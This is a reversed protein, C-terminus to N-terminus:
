RECSAKREMMQPGDMTEFEQCKEKKTKRLEGIATEDAKSVEGKSLIESSKKNLADGAEICECISDRGCGSLTIGMLSGVVIAKLPLFRIKM